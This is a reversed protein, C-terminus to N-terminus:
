QFLLKNGFQHVRIKRKYSSDKNVVLAAINNYTSCIREIDEESIMLFATSLADAYDPRTTVVWAALRSTVPKGQRPDVIHSGKTIGSSGISQDLLKVQYSRDGSRGPVQFSVPWEQQEKGSYGLVTSYGSHILAYEIGWDQLFDKMRLLAYGKGYGGLDLTIGDSFLHVTFSEPYLHLWSLGTRELAGKIESKEPIRLGPPENERPKWLDILPGASIDFAGKTMRYLKMCEQLCNFTDESVVVSEYRQLSNIRSIDSNPIFRSLDQELRDLESFAAQAAQGAYVPDEHILLVEFVTHMAHHEFRLLDHSDKSKGVFHIKEYAKM